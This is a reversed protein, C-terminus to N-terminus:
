QLSVRGWMEQLLAADDAEALEAIVRCCTAPLKDFTASKLTPPTFHGSANAM